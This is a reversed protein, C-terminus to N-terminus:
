PRPTAVIATLSPHRNAPRHQRSRRRPMVVVNDQMTGATDGTPAVIFVVLRHHRGPQGIDRALAAGVVSQNQVRSRWGAYVKLLVAVGHGARHAVETAPVGCNLWLSVAAHRLDYPRGALPSAAQAPTLAAKRAKKWAQSYASESLYGGRPARFLGGDQAVGFREIHDKLLRV